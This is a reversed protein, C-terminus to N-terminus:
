SAFMFPIAVPEQVGFQFLFAEIHTHLNDSSNVARFAERQAAARALFQGFAHAPGQHGTAAFWRQDSSKM